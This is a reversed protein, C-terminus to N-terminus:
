IKKELVVPKKWLYTRGHEGQLKRLVVFQAVLRVGIRAKCAARGCFRIATRTDNRLLLAIIKGTKVCGGFEM